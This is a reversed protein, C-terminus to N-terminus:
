EDTRRLQITAPKSCVRTDRAGAPVGCVLVESQMSPLDEPILLNVQQIGPVGPAPGAFAPATIERDHLKATIFGLGDQPLGTAFIILQRGPAEPNGASNPAGNQSLVGAPFIIPAAPALTVAFGLSAVGNVTVQLQARTQTGLGVPVVVDLKQENDVTSSALVQAPFGDFSVKVDQGALRAGRISALSGPVLSTTLESLYSSVLRISPSTGAPPPTTGQINIRIPLIRVGAIAGADITLTAEYVGPTLKEPFATLNLSANNLGAAPLIKLWGDGKKYEIKATWNMLGSNENLVRLFKQYFGPTATVDFELPPADVTLRPFYNARCDGALSCDLAPTVDRFRPISASPSATLINSLPAFSVRATAVTGDQGSDRPLAIFTPIQANEFAGGNSDLVEYVAVGSGESLRVEAVTNFAISQPIRPDGGFGNSDANLVRALLLMGGRATAGYSGASAPVGLDGASTPDTSTSGAIFDPVLLRAQSPLGDYRIMVRTGPSVPDPRPVFAAPFGETIRTTAFRVGGAILTAFTIEEPLNSGTCVIRTSTGASYLGRLPVGATVPNNRIGISTMGSTSFRVQVAASSNPDGQVLIGKIQFSTLGNAPMTFRFTNFSLVRPNVLLASSSLVRRGTATDVIIQADVFQESTLKNTIPHTLSLIFSASVEGSSPGACTLVIDGLPETLGESRIQLPDATADCTIQQVVQAQIPVASLVFGLVCVLLKMNEEAKM